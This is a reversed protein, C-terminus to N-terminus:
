SERMQQQIAPLLAYGLRVDYPGGDPPLSNPNTGPELRYDILAAFDALIRGQNANSRLELVLLALGGLLALLIVVSSVMLVRSVFRAFGSSTSHGATRAAPEPQGKMLRM